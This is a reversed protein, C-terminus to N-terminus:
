GIRIVDNLDAGFCEPRVRFVEQGAATWRRSCTAAARDGAENEDHDVAIWLCEIGPLVPFSAIGGASLLSWVPSAGFEPISRMSLTSEIGEGVGLCTMVDPDNTLKVAGGAVPGLSMRDLGGVSVKHGALDLATRHIAQPEDTRINRVLGVMCPVRQLGFKCAPHFRIANGAAGEPLANAVTRRELYRMVPTDIPDVAERWLRAAEESPVAEVSPAAHPKPDRTVSFGTLLEVAGAFDLGHIHMVLAIVDGGKGCGRCNWVHKRLSNAFRDHGGCAPCPSVLEHGVRKSKIGTGAVVDGIPVARAQDILRQDVACDGLCRITSSM